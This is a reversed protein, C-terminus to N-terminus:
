MLNCLSGIHGHLPSSMLKLTLSETLLALNEPNQIENPLADRILNALSEFLGSERRSYLNIRSNLTNFEQNLTLRDM